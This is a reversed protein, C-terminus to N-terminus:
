QEIYESTCLEVANVRKTKEFQPEVLTYLCVVRTIQLMSHKHTHTHTYKYHPLKLPLSVNCSSHDRCPFHCYELHHISHICTRLRGTVPQNTNTFRPTAETPFRGEYQKSRSEKRVFPKKKLRTSFQRRISNNSRKPTKHQQQQKPTSLLEHHRLTIHFRRM